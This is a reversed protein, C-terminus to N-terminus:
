ATISQFSPLQACCAASQECHNPQLSMLIQTECAIRINSSTKWDLPTPDNTTFINSGIQVVIQVM